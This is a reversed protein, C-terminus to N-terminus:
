LDSGTGINPPQVDIAPRVVSSYLLTGDQTVVQFMNEINLVFILKQSNVSVINEDTEYVIREGVWVQQATAVLLEGQHWGLAVVDQLTTAPTTNETQLDYRMITDGLVYAIVQGDVAPLRGEAIFPRVSYFPTMVRFIQEQGDKVASFVYSSVDAAWSPQSIQSYGADAPIVAQWASDPASYVMITTDDMVVALRKNMPSWALHTINGSTTLTQRFYGTATDYEGINSGVGVTLIFTLLLAMM